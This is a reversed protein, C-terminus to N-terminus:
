GLVRRIEDSTTISESALRGGEVGLPVMGAAVAAEEIEARSPRDAIKRRLADTIAMMEGFAIRGRFGTGQCAECGKGTCACLRRVLRQALIRSLSATLVHTEVGMELIRVLVAAATGAHITSIVLHGTLGAEMAVHATERDRIEGVLIM